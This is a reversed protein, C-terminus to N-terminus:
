QLGYPIEAKAVIKGHKGPRNQGPRMSATWVMMTEDESLIHKGPRNQGPRMSAKEFKRISRYMGRKGPRNQGPRM